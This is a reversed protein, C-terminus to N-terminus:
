SKVSIILSSTDRMRTTTLVKEDLDSSEVPPRLELRGGAGAGGCSGGRRGGKGLQVGKERETPPLYTVSAVNVRL